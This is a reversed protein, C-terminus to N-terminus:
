DNEMEEKQKEIERESDIKLAKYMDLLKCVVSKDIRCNFDLKAEEMLQRYKFTLIFNQTM